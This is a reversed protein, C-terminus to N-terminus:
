LRIRSFGERENFAATFKLAVVLLVDSFNM